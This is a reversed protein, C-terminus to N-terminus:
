LGWLLSKVSQILNLNLKKEVRLENNVMNERQSAVLTVWVTYNVGEILEYVGHFFHYNIYQLKIKCM